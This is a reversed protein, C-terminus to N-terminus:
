ADGEDTGPEYEFRSCHGRADDDHLLCMLGTRGAISHRCDWCTQGQGRLWQMDVKQKQRRQLNEM